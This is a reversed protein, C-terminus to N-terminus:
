SANALRAHFVELHSALNHKAPNWTYHYSWRQWNRGIFEQFQDANQPWGGGSCRVHPFSWFMDVASLPYQYDTMMMVDTARPEYGDPLIFGSVIIYSRVGDSETSVDNGYARLEDVDAVLRESDM